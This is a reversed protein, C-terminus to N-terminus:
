AIGFRLTALVEIQLPNNYCLKSSYNLAHSRAENQAKIM